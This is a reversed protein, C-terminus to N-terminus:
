DAYYENIHDLVLQINNDIYTEKADWMGMPGRLRENVTDKTLRTQFM